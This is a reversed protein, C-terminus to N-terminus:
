EAARPGRLGQELPKSEHTGNAAEYLLQMGFEIEHVLQIGHVTADTEAQHILM